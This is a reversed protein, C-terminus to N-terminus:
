DGSITEYTVWNGKKEIFRAKPAGYVVTGLQGVDNIYLYAGYTLAWSAGTVLSAPALGGIKVSSTNTYDTGVYDQIIIGPAFRIAVVGEGATIIEPTLGNMRMYDDPTPWKYAIYFTTADASSIAIATTDVKKLKKITQYYPVGETSSTKWNATDVVCFSLQWIIGSAIFNGDHLHTPCVLVSGKNM